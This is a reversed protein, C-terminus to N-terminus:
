MLQAVISRLSCYIINEEYCEKNKKISVFISNYFSKPALGKWIISNPQYVM